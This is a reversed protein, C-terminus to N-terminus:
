QAIDDRSFNELPETYAEAPLGRYAESVNSARRGDGTDVTGRGRLDAPRSIQRATMQEVGCGFRYEGIHRTTQRDYLGDMTGCDSPGEATVMTYSVMLMPEGQGSVPLTSTKVNRIGKRSLKDSMSSLENVAKMATYSKSSPDFSITLDVPGEGYRGYQSALASLYGDNVNKVAIQDIGQHTNLEVKSTNMMSPTSQQCAMLSACGIAALLLSYKMNM